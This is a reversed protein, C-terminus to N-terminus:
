RGSLMMRKHGLLKRLSDAYKMENKKYLGGQYWDVRFVM